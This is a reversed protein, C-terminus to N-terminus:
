RLQQQPPGPSPDFNESAGAVLHWVWTRPVGLQTDLLEWNSSRLVGNYAEAFHLSFMSSFSPTFKPRFTLSRKTGLRGQRLIEVSALMRLEYSGFESKDRLTDSDLLRNRGDTNAIPSGGLRCTVKIRFDLHRSWFEALGFANPM